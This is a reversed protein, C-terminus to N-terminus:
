GQQMFMYQSIGYKGLKEIFLDSTKNLIDKLTGFIKKIMKEINFLKKLIMTVNPEAKFSCLYTALEAMEKDFKYNLRIKEIVVRELDHNIINSSEEDFLPLETDYFDNHFSKGSGFRIYQKIDLSLLGYWIKRWLNGMKGKSILLDFKSPDRNLGISVGMQILMSLFIQGDANNGDTLGNFREYENMLLALQFIPLACRRLLKFQNLCSQAVNIMRENLPHDLLYQEEKTRTISGDNPDDNIVLSLESFKLVLLLTGLIAFDMKKSMHITDVREELYRDNFHNGGLLNEIDGIFSSQDIYPILPYVYNFFRKISLWIVKKNPLVKLIQQLAFDMNFYVCKPNIHTNLITGDFPTNYM